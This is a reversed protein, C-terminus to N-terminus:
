KLYMIKKVFDYTIRVEQHKRKAARAVSTARAKAPVTVLKHSFITPVAAKKLKRKSGGLLQNQLHVSEDFCSLDFHDSCLYPCKLLNEIPRGIAVLWKKRLEKRDNGLIRYFTIKKKSREKKRRNKPSMTAGM